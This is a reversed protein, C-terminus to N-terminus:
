SNYRVPLAMRSTMLGKTKGLERKWQQRPNTSSKPLWFFWILVSHDQANIPEYVSKALGLLPARPRPLEFGSKALRPHVTIKIQTKYGPPSTKQINNPVRKQTETVM